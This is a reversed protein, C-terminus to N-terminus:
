RFKRGTYMETLMMKLTYKAAPRAHRRFLKQLIQGNLM